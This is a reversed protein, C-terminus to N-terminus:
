GYVPIDPDNDNDNKPKYVPIKISEVDSVKKNNEGYIPLKISQNDPINPQTVNSKNRQLNNMVPPIRVMPMILPRPIRGKRKNKKKNSKMNFINRMFVVLDIAALYFLYQRYNNVIQINQTFKSYLYAYLIIYLILAIIFLRIMRNKPDLKKWIPFSYISNFFM